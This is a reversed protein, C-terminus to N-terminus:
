IPCSFLEDTRPSGPLKHFACLTLAVLILMMYLIIFISKPLNM